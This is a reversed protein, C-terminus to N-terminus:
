GKVLIITVGREDRSIRTLMTYGNYDAEGVHPDIAHITDVGEFEAAIVSLPRDDGTLKIVCEGRRTPAYAYDCEYTKGNATIKM